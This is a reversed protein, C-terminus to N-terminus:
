RMLEKYIVMPLQNYELAAKIQPYNGNSSVLFHKLQVRLKGSINIKADTNHQKLLSEIKTACLMEEEIKEKQIILILCLRKNSLM